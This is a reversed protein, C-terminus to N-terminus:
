SLSNKGEDDKKEKKKKRQSSNRTNRTNRTNRINYRLGTTAGDPWIKGSIDLYTWIYGTTPLAILYPAM